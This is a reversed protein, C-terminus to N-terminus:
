CDTSGANMGLICRDDSSHLIITLHIVIRHPHIVCILILQSFIEDHHVNWSFSISVLQILAGLQSEAALLLVLVVKLVNREMLMHILALISVSLHYHLACVLVQHIHLTDVIHVPGFHIAGHHDLEVRGSLFRDTNRARPCIQIFTSKKRAVHNVRGVSCIGHYVLIHVHILHIGSIGSCAVTCISFVIVIATLSEFKIWINNSVVPDVWVHITVGQKIFIELLTTQVM